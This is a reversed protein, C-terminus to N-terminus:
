EVIKVSNIVPQNEKEVTGNSDTVPTNEAIADVVDMGDKVMGFAAYQGDLFTSDEHVIFFQSSASDYAKARAMSIVGRVHSLNNEVGNASFEGKINEDSGGAGTGEPDGGQIMFGEIIRHFTLGDYFGEGVLKKFNEVTIPALEDYLDVTITGYDKVDIAVTTTAGDYKFETTASTEKKEESVASSKKSSVSIPNTKRESSCGSIFLCSLILMLALVLSFSKVLISKTKM